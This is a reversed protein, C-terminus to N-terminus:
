HYEWFIRAAAARTITESLSPEASPTALDARKSGTLMWVALLLTLVGAAIASTLVPKAKLPQAIRLILSPKIPPTPKSPERQGPQEPRSSSQRVAQRPPPQRLRSSTLGSSAVIQGLEDLGSGSQAPEDQKQYLIRSRQQKIKSSTKGQGTTKKLQSPVTQITGCHQCRCVGGAFAEDITLVTQCKSCTLQIM